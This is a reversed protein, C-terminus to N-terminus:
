SSNKKLIYHRNCYPCIVERIEAKIALFVRPHGQIGGGNCEVTLSTTETIEVSYPPSERNEEKM